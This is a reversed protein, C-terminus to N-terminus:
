VDARKRKKALGAKKLIRNATTQSIGLEIAIKEAGYNYKQRHEIV